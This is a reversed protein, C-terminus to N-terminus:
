RSWMKSKGWAMIEVVCKIPDRYVESGTFRMVQLGHAQLRRDRERDRAAQEKTREHFDHGDCEVALRHPREEQDLVLFVFDVPWDLVRVQWGMYLTDPVPPEPPVPGSAIFELIGHEQIFLQAYGSAATYLLREIPSPFAHAVGADDFNARMQAHLMDGLTEAAKDIGFSM